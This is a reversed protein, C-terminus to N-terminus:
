LTIQKATRYRLDFCDANQGVPTTHIIIANLLLHINKEIGRWTKGYHVMAALLGDPKELHIKRSIPPGPLQLVSLYLTQLTRGKLSEVPLTIERSGADSQRNHGPDNLPMAALNPCFTDHILSRNEVKRHAPLLCNYKSFDSQLEKRIQHGPLFKKTFLYIKLYM